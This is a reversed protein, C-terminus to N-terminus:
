LNYYEKLAKCYKKKLFHKCYSPEILWNEKDTLQTCRCLVKYENASVQTCWICDSCKM